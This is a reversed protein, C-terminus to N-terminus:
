QRSLYLAMERVDSDSLAPMATRMQSSAGNSRNGDRIDVIQRFLYEESQGAVRPYTEFSPTRGRPGHCAICGSNEYLAKGAATSRGDRGRFVLGAFGPDFLHVAAPLIVSAAFAILVGRKVRRRLNPSASWKM